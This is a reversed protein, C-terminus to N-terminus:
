VPYRLKRMARAKAALAPGGSYLGYSMTRLRHGVIHAVYNEAVGADEFMTCVTRRISHFDHGKGFGHNAKLTTFRKTLPKSRDGFKDAKLGHFLYGNKDANKVLRRMVPMLRSHIPVERSADETKTGPMDISRKGLDIHEAKLTAIEEARAGTYMDVLIFDALQEDRKRAAKEMRVLAAAPYARKKQRKAGVMTLHDFLGPRDPAAKLSVLFRYYRRLDGLARHVTARAAGKTAEANLWRQITASDVDKTTAFIEGFRELNTRKMHLSKAMIEGKLTNTYEDLHEIFPVTKGTAIDMAQSLKSFEEDTLNERDLIGLKDELYDQLAHEREGRQEDTAEALWKRFGAANFRDEVQRKARELRILWERKLDTAKIEAITRDRTKLNASFRYTGIVERLSPPVDHFYWYVNHRQTLYM